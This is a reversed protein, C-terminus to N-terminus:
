LPQREQLYEHIRYPYLALKARTILDIQNERVDGVGFCTGFYKEHPETDWPIGLRKFNTHEFGFGLMHVRQAECIIDRARQYLAEQDRDSIVRISQAARMVFDWDDAQKPLYPNYKDRSPM